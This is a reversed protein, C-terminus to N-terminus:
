IKFRRKGGEPGGEKKRKQKREEWEGERERRAKNRGKIVTQMAKWAKIESEERVSGM